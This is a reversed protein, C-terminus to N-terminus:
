QRSIQNILMEIRHEWTNKEIFDDVVEKDIEINKAMEINKIFNIEKKYFYIYPIGVLSENYYSVIPKYGALYELAKVPNAENSGDKCIYPIICVDFYHLYKYLDEWNKQGILNINHPINDIEAMIKVSNGGILNFTWNPKKAAVNKVLGWDFWDTWFSSYFGITIDAEELDTPKKFPRKKFQEKNAANPLLRIDSRIKRFKVLLVPSAAYCLDAFKIMKSETKIDYWDNEPMHAWSDIIRYIIISGKDKLIKCIDFYGKEPLECLVITNDFSINKNGVLDYAKSVKTAGVFVYNYGKKLLARAFQRCSDGGGGSNWHSAALIIFDYPLTFNTALM